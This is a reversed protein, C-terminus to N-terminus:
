ILRIPKASATNLNVTYTITATTSDEETIIKDAIFLTPPLDNDIITASARTNAIAANTVDRLKILFTEDDEDIRDGIIPIIITQSTEGPAFTITGNSITYDKGSTATGDTTSYNATVTRLSPESLSATFVVSTNGDDGESLSINSVSLTPLKFVKVTMADTAVAGDSDTVTLTVNYTGYVAYIHTPNLDNKVINGDGFDWAIAHTGKIGPDTFHGNFAVTEGVHMIQNDGAAVTPAVNNM